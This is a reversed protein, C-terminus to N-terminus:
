LLDEDEEMDVILKFSVEVGIYKMLKDLHDMKLDTKDRLFKSLTSQPVGSGKAIENISESIQRAKLLNKIDTKM